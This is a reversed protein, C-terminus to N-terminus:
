HPALPNIHRVGPFRKFDNDASHVTYGHELALAAIHADTTLNGATGTQTLLNGLIARHRDGPSIATVNPLALWEDIYGCAAEPTLPNEFIRPNTTLRLFALLVVWPIGVTQPNSLTEELWRKAAQHHPQGKSVAYILLNADVLTM